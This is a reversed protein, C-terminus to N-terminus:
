RRGNSRCRCFYGCSSLEANVDLRRCFIRRLLPTMASAEAFFHMQLLIFARPQSPLNLQQSMGLWAQANICLAHHALCYDGANGPSADHRLM